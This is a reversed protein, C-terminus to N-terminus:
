SGGIAIGNDLISIAVRLTGGICLNSLKLAPGDIQDSTIVIKNHNPVQFTGRVDILNRSLHIWLVNDAKHIRDKVVLTSNGIREITFAPDVQYVNENINLILNGSSDWLLLRSIFVSGDDGREVSIVPTGDLELLTFRTLTSWGIITAARGALADNPINCKTIIEEDNADPILVGMREAVYQTRNKIVTVHPCNNTNNTGGTIMCRATQAGKATAHNPYLSAMAFLCITWCWISM